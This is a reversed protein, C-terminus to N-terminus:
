SDHEVSLISPEVEMASETPTGNESFLFGGVVLLAGIGLMAIAKKM